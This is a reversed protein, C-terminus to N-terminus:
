MSEGQPQQIKAMLAQMNSIMDQMKQVAEGKLEDPMSEISEMDVVEGTKLPVFVGPTPPVISTNKPAKVVTNFVGLPSGNRSLIVEGEKPHRAPTTLNVGKSSSPTQFVSSNAGKKATFAGGTQGGIAGRTVAELSDGYEEQFRKLSMQKVHNPLKILELHFAQQISTAMFDIDKKIQACKAEVQSDIDQLLGDVIDPNYQIDIPSINEEDDNRPAKKKTRNKKTNAPM